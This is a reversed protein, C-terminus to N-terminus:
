SRCSTQVALRHPVNWCPNLVLCRIAQTFVPTRRYPRGVIVDMDLDDEGARIARLSYAAINVRLYTDPEERPLWRWRELNADIRDIWSLRSANLVALTAEGVIGDPELGAAVQFTM